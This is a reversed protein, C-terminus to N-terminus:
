NTDIQRKLQLFDTIFEISTEKYLLLVSKGIEILVRSLEYKSCFKSGLDLLNMIAIQEM